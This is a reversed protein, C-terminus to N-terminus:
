HMLAQYLHDVQLGRHEASQYFAQVVQARSVGAQLWSVWLNIGGQDAARGLLDHYLGNVFLSQATM